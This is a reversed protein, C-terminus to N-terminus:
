SAHKAGKNEHEDVVCSTVIIGERLSTGVDMFIKVAHNTVTPQKMALPTCFGALNWRGDKGILM